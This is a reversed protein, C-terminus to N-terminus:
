LNQVSEYETRECAGIPVTAEIVTGKGIESDIVFAGGVMRMRERMSVLGLSGAQNASKADFGQGYDEVRLVLNGDDLALTVTLRRTESHKLSNQLAEQFIRYTALSLPKPLQKPVGISRFDVAWAMRQQVSNCDARIASELGVKELVASHLSRSLQQIDRAVSSLREGMKQIVLRVDPSADPREATAALEFLLSAMRQGYDDHLEMAIRRREDEQLTLLRQSLKELKVGARVTADHQASAASELRVLYFFTTGAVVLSLLLTVTIAAWLRREAEEAFLASRTAAARLDARDRAGIEDITELFADRLPVLKGILLNVGARSRQDRAIELHRDAITWYELLQAEFQEALPRREPTSVRKYDDVANMAQSWYRRAQNRYTPLSVANPDLLYDRVSSATLSLLRRVRELREGQQFYQRTTLTGQQTVNSLSRAAYVGLALLLALVVSLAAILVPRTGRRM